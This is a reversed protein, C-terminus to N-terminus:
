VFTSKSRITVAYFQNLLAATAFAKWSAVVNQNHPDSKDANRLISVKPALRSNTGSLKVTGFAERAVVISTFVSGSADYTGEGSATGEIFPNNAELVKVGRVKGIEGSYIAEKHQYENVKQWDDDERLDHACQNPVVAVFSGGDFSPAGNKRLQTTAIDLDKVTLAANAATAGTVASFDSLGQAFRKQGASTVGSIIANRCLNDIWLAASEGMRDVEIDLSKLLDTEMMIDSIKVKDGYPKLTADVPTITSNSFTSNEPTGETLEIVTDTAQSRRFFRITMSGAHRPLEAQQALPALRLQNKQHELLRKTYFHEDLRQDSHTSSTIAAM